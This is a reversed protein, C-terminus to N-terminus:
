ASGGEGEETPTPLAFLLRDTESVFWEVNLLSRVLGEAESMEEESPNMLGTGYLERSREVGRNIDRVFSRTLREFRECVAELQGVSMQSLEFFRAAGVLASAYRRVDGEGYNTPEIGNKDLHSQLQGESYRFLVTSMDPACVPSEARGVLKQKADKVIRADERRVVSVVPSSSLPKKVVRTPTV